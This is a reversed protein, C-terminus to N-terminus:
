FFTSVKWLGIAGLVEWAFAGARLALGPTVAVAGAPQLYVMAAEVVWPMAFAVAMQALASRRVSRVREEGQWEAELMPLLRDLLPLVPLGNRYVMELQSLCGGSLPLAGRARFRSLCQELSRGDDFRRLSDGLARSFPEDIERSLHFLASPLSLGVVVLGRLAALFGLASRDLRARQRTAHWRSLPPLGLPVALLVALGSLPSGCWWASVFCIALTVLIAGSLFRARERSALFPVVRRSVEGLILTRLFLSLLALGALWAFVGLWFLGFYVLFARMASLGTCVLSWLRM